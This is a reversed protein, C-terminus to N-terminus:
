FNGEQFQEAAYLRHMVENATLFIKIKSSYFGTGISVNLLTLNWSISLASSFRPKIRLAGGGVCM